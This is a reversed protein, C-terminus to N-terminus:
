IIYTTIYICFLRICVRLYGLVEYISLTYARARNKNEDVRALRKGATETSAEKETQRQRVLVLVSEEGRKRRSEIEKNLEAQNGQM